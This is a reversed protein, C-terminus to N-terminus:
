LVTVVGPYFDFTSSSPARRPVVTRRVQQQRPHPPNRQEVPVSLCRRAPLLFVSVFCERVTRVQGALRPLFDDDGGNNTLSPLRAAVWMVEGGACGSFRLTHSSSRPRWGLPLPPLPTHVLFPGRSFPGAHEYLLLCCAVSRPSLGNPHSAPSCKFCEWQPFSFVSLHWSPFFVPPQPKRNASLPFGFRSRRRTPEVGGVGAPKLARFMVPRLIQHVEGPCFFTSIADAPFGM